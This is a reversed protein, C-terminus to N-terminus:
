LFATGSRQLLESDGMNWAGEEGLIYLYSPLFESHEELSWPQFWPPGWKARLRVRDFTKGVLHRIESIADAAGEWDFIDPIRFVLCVLWLCPVPVCHIPESVRKCNTVHVVLREKQGGENFLLLLSFFSVVFHNRKWTTRIGCSSDPTLLTNADLPTLIM